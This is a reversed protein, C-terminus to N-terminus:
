WLCALWVKFLLCHFEKHLSKTSRLYLVQLVFTVTLFCHFHLLDILFWYLFLFMGQAFFLNMLTDLTTADFPGINTASLSFNTTVFSLNGIVMNNSLIAQSSFFLLVDCM